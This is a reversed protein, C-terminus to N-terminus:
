ALHFLVYFRPVLFEYALGALLGIAPGRSRTLHLAYALGAGVVLCNRNELDLFVPFFDM